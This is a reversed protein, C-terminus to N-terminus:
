SVRQVWENNTQCREEAVVSARDVSTIFIYIFIDFIVVAVFAAAAAVVVPVLAIVVAIDFVLIAVFSLVQLQDASAPDKYADVQTNPESCTENCGSPVTHTQLLLASVEGLSAQSNSINSGYGCHSTISTLPLHDLFDAYGNFGHHSHRRFRQMVSPHDHHSSYSM